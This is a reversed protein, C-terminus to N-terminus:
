EPKNDEKITRGLKDKCTELTESKVWHIWVLLSMVEELTRERMVGLVVEHEKKKEVDYGWDECFYKKVIM